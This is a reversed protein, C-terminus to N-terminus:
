LSCTIFVFIYVVNIVVLCTLFENLTLCMCTFMIFEFIFNWESCICSLSFAALVRLDFTM